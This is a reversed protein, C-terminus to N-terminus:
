ATVARALLGELLPWLVAIALLATAAAMVYLTSAAPKRRTRRTQWAIWGWAAVVAVIAAGTIWVHLSAFWALLGGTTALMAAPLAFPLVCCAGCAVAGTSLAAATLGATRSGPQTESADGSSSQASCGCASSPSSRAVFHEFLSDAAERATEPARIILHIEDEAERLDFDLFACCTRENRVMERVRERAQPAYRLDLTLDRRDHSRLASTNLAAISTIRDKYAGPALTCAVPLAEAISM